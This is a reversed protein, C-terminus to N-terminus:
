NVGFMTEAYIVDQESLIPRLIDQMLWGYRKTNPWWVYSFMVGDMIAFKPIAKLESFIPDLSKFPKLLSTVAFLATGNPPTEIRTTTKFAQEFKPSQSFDCAERDVICLQWAKDM